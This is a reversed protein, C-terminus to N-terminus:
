ACSRSGASRAGRRVARRRRRGAAPRAVARAGRARRRGARRRTARAEALLREFRRVDVLEPDVRLEYGRGRTLIEAGADDGLVRRLRWVYNQVMKAASAPPARGVPGRDPPRRSVTRNAELALMALVARQKAGGLALPRGAASAEVPGLVRLEMTRNTRSTDCSELWGAGPRYIRRDLSEGYVSSLGHASWGGAAHHEDLWWAGPPGGHEGGVAAARGRDARESTDREHGGERGGRDGAGGRLLPVVARELARRRLGLRGVVRGVALGLRERRRLGRRRGIVRRPERDGRRDGARDQDDAAPAVWTWRSRTRRRAARGAIYGVGRRSSSWSGPPASRATPTQRM